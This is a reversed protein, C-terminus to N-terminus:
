TTASILLFFLPFLSSSSPPLKNISSSSSSASSSAASVHPPSTVNNAPIVYQNIKQILLSELQSVSQQKNFKIEQANFRQKISSLQEKILRKKTAESTIQSLTTRMDEESSWLERNANATQTATRKVKRRQKIIAKSEAQESYLQDDREFRKKLSEKIKVRYARAIRLNRALQEPSESFSWEITGNQSACIRAEKTSALFNVSFDDLHRGLSYTRENHDNNPPTASAVKKVSESPRNLVGEPGYEPVFHEFSDLLCKMECKLTNVNMNKRKDINWATRDSYHTLTQQDTANDREEETARKQTAVTSRYNRSQSLQRKTTKLDRRLEANETTLENKEEYEMEMQEVRKKLEEKEKLARKTKKNVRYKQAAFKNREKRSLGQVLLAYVARLCACSEGDTTLHFSALVSAVASAILDV